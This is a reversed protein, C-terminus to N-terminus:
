FINKEGLRRDKRRRFEQFLRESDRSALAQAM